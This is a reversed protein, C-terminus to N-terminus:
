LMPLNSVDYEPANSVALVAVAAATTETVPNEAIRRMFSHVRTGDPMTEDFVARGGEKCCQRLMLVFPRGAGEPTDRYNDSGGTLEINFTRAIFDRYAQNTRTFRATEGRVELVAMPITNFYHKLRDDEDKALVSLDYLNIRCLADFYAAQAPDEFGILTNDSYRRVIEEYPVPKAFYYGQIKACGIDRLFEYQDEREVGECVTDVGLNLAMRVLETLVIKARDGSDFQQMFRLDLKVLDVNLDALVDLSSYGSGFDDMWVPFGLDRLRDAQAKIFDFDSGIISETIEISLLRHELGAADVRSRIEEVIDCADFDARSLNLSQPVVYMGAEKMKRVKALIEDLVYLDLKYILGSHELFPIFEDPPLLGRKPDLWRSLAEEDCVKGNASRVIAQYYVKIWKEKLAKDFNTVVYQEMEARDLMGADFYKMGSLYSNRIEDRAVKARDCATSVDVKDFRDPYIGVRISPYGLGAKQKWKEFLQKLREELDEDNTVALFQDKGIRCLNDKGFEPTLLAALDKLLLDGKEFGNNQNYFKMGTLDLFLFATQGGNREIERRKKEALELFHTMGPLGTLLDYYNGSLISSELKSELQERYENKENELIFSHLVCTSILCGGAYMPLLPYYTQALIFGIMALSFLGITIHRSRMTGKGSKAAVTFVYVASLAFMFIQFVLIVYRGWAAHYEDNEDFYFLVPYFLNVTIFLMVFGFLIWGSGELFRGFMNQENLYDVVYWTWFLISSTMAAFYLETDAFALAVLHNEYLIGWLIDSIFYIAFSLQLATYSRRAPLADKWAGGSFIDHNIIIHIILALIGISSYLM